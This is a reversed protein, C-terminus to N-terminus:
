APPRDGDDRRRYEGGAAAGSGRERSRSRPREYGGPPGRGPPPPGPPPGRAHPDPPYGGYHSPPPGYRDYHPPPPGPPPQLAGPSRKARKCSVSSCRRAAHEGARLPRLRWLAPAAPRLPRLWRPTAAPRAPAAAASCMRCGTVTLLPVSGGMCWGSVPGYRDYGGGYTPPPPGYRDAAGGRPPEPYHPAGYGGGGGRYPPPGGGASPPPRDDKGYKAIELTVPRGLIISGQEATVAADAESQEAYRVFAFGRPRGSARDRPLYIDRVEGYKAFVERLDEPRTDFPIQLM